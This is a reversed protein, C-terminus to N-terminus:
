DHINAYTYIYIYLIYLGNGTPLVQLLKRHAIYLLTITMCYNNDLQFEFHTAMSM